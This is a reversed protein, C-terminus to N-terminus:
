SRHCMTRSLSITILCWELTRSVKYRHSRIVLFKSQFTLISNNAINKSSILIFETKDTNLKLKNTFMFNQIDNLCNKLNQLPHFFNAPSLTMYLQTDNTYFHYNISSHSHIISSIPNTCLSFFFQILFLAMPSGLSSRLLIHSHALSRPRTHGEKCTHNSGASHWNVSEMTFMLDTWSFLKTDFTAYLDLLTFAIVSGKPMNLLIDNHINLLASETSHHKRYVLQFATMLGAENLHTQLQAAVVCELIKLIFNVNSVPRYTKFVEKDLSLKKLIPTVHAQKCIESM